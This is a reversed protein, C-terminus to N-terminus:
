LAFNILARTKIPVHGNQNSSESTNSGQNAREGNGNQVPNQVPNQVLCHGPGACRGKGIGLHCECVEVQLREELHAPSGVYSAGVGGRFGGAVPTPRVICEFATCPPYVQAGVAAAARRPTLVSRLPTTLTRTFLTRGTPTMPTAGTAFQPRRTTSLRVQPASLRAGPAPVSGGGRGGRRGCRRSVRRLYRLLLRRARRRFQKGYLCYIIFNLTCNLVVLTNSIEILYFVVADEALAVDLTKLVQLTM